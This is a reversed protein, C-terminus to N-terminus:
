VRATVTVEDRDHYLQKARVSRWGGSELTARIKSVMEAKRKMPLKFNAVLLTADRRRAWRALMQAVELPRWAMDCLLWDVPEDPEFDFASGKVHRLGKRKMLEPELRAPDVAVVRARRDLLVFSWGGPAAGLDVCLEGPEPSMGLWLFAEALKRAARSPRDGPVRVRMRGGPALSMADHSPTLGVAISTPGFVCVDALPISAAGVSRSPVRHAGRAGLEREVADAVAAARQALPNGEKSDPVWASLVYDQQGGLEPSLADVVGITAEEVSTPELVARVTFGHRAFTLDVRGEKKPVRKAVVLAPAVLRPPDKDGSLRFEDVLDQEAGERTTLLWEGPRPRAVRTENRKTRRSDHM